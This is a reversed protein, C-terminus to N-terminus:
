NVEGVYVCSIDLTEETEDKYNNISAVRYLKGNYKIVQTDVEKDFLAKLYGNENQLLKNQNVENIYLARCEDAVRRHDAIREYMERKFKSM